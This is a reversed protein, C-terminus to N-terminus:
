FAFGYGLSHIPGMIQSILMAGIVVATSGLNLGISAIIIACMLIMAEPANFALNKQMDSHIKKAPARDITLNIKKIQEIM